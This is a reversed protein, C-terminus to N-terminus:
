PWPQRDPAATITTRSRPVASLLSGGSGRAPRKGIIALESGCAAIDLGHDDSPFTSGCYGCALTGFQRDFRPFTRNVTGLQRDVAPNVGRPRGVM